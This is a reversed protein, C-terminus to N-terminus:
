GVPVTPPVIKLVYSDQQDYTNALTQNTVVVPQTGGSVAKLRRYTGIRVAASFGSFVEESEGQDVLKISVNKLTPAAVWSSVFSAENAAKGAGTVVLSGLSATLNVFDARDEPLMRQPFEDNLGVFISSNFLSSTTVTGINGASSIFSSRIEGAVTVSSLLMANTGQNTGSVYVGGFLDGAVTGTTATKASGTLNITGIKYASIESMLWNVSRIGQIVGEVSLMTKNLVEGRSTFLGLNGSSIRAEFDNASGVIVSGVNGSIDWESDRIQGAITASGLTNGTSPGISLEGLKISSETFNGVIASHGAKAAQGRVNLTGVKAAILDGEIWDAVTISGVAVGPATIDWFFTQGATFSGLKTQTGYYANISFAHDYLAGVTVNGVSGTVDWDITRESDGALEGAIRVTGLTLSAPADLDGHLALEANFDGALAPQTATKALGTSILQGLNKAEISGRDWSGVQILGIGLDFRVDTDVVAGTVILSNLKGDGRLRFDESVSGLRVTGINGGSWIESDELDGIVTMSGVALASDPLDAGLITMELDDVVSRPEDFVFGGATFSVISNARITGEDWAGVKVTGFRGGVFGEPQDESEYGALLNLDTALGKVTFSDLGDEFMMSAGDAGGLVISGSHGYVNWEGGYVTGAVRLSGIANQGQPHGANYVDLDVSLDGALYPRTATKTQGTINMTGIGGTQLEDDGENLNLWEVATFSGIYGNTELDLDNIRKFTFDTRTNVSGGIIIEHSDPGFVDGLIVTAAGGHIHLDGFLNVNAARLMNLPGELHIEDIVTTGSGVGKTKTVDVTLNTTRASDMVDLSLIEHTDPDYRVVGNGPGTLGFVVTNGQDDIFTRDAAKTNKNFTISDLRVDGTVTFTFPDAGDVNNPISVVGTYSGLTDSLLSLELFATEGPELSDNTVVASFGEPVTIEGLDLMGDGNNVIHFIQILPGYGKGVWGLDTGNATSTTTSGNEIVIDNFTVEIEPMYVREFTRAILSPTGELGGFGNWAATFGGTGDMSLTPQLDVHSGDLTSSVDFTDVLERTESDYRAGVVVWGSKDEITQSTQWIVVSSNDAAFGVTADYQSRNTEESISFADGVATLTNDFYQGEVSWSSGMKAQDWAFLYNGDGDIDFSYTAYHGGIQEFVAPATVVETQSGRKSGDNGFQQAFITTQEAKLDYQMWAITFDGLLGVSVTPSVIEREDVTTSVLFADGELAGTEDLLQGYVGGPLMQGPNEEDPVKQYWTVVFGGTPLVALKPAYSGGPAATGIEVPGGLPFGNPLYRRALIVSDNTPDESDTQSWAVLYGDGSVAAISPSSPTWTEVFGSVDMTAFQPEMNPFYSRAQIGQGDETETTWALAFSVNFATSVAVPSSVETAMVLEPGVPRIHPASLLQRGELAELGESGARDSRKLWGALRTSVSSFCTGVRVNRLAATLTM